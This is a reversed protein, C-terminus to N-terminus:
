KTKNRNQQSTGFLRYPTGHIYLLEDTGRHTVSSTDRLFEGKGVNTPSLLMLSPCRRVVEDPQRDVATAHSSSGQCRQRIQSETTSRSEKDESSPNPTHLLVLSSATYRSGSSPIKTSRRHSTASGWPWAISGSPRYSPAQAHLPRCREQLSLFM